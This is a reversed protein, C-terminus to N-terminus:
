LDRAFNFAAERTCSSFRRLVTDLTSVALKTAPRDRVRRGAHPLGLSLIRVCGVGQDEGARCWRRGVVALVLM